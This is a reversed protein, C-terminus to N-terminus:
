DFWSAWHSVAGIEIVKSDSASFHRSSVHAQKSSSTSSSRYVAKIIFLMKHLRKKSEVEFSISYNLLKAFKWCLYLVELLELQQSEFFCFLNFKFTIIGILKRKSVFVYLFLIELDAYWYYIIFAFFNFFLLLQRCM